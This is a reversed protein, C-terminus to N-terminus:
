LLQEDDVLKGGGNNNRALVGTRTSPVVAFWPEAQSCPGRSPGLASLRGPQGLRGFTTGGIPWGLEVVQSDALRFGSHTRVICGLGSGSGDLIVEACGTNNM